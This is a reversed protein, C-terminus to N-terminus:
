VAKILVYNLDMQILIIKGYNTLTVTGSNGTGDDDDLQDSDDNM